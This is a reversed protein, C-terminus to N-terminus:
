LSIFVFLRLFVQVYINMIATNIMPLSLLYGLYGDAPSSIFQPAGYLAINSLVLFSHVVPVQLLM